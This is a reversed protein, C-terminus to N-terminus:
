LPPRIRWWISFVTVSYYGGRMKWGLDTRLLWYGARQGAIVKKASSHEWCPCGEKLRAGWFCGMFIQMVEKLCQCVVDHQFGTTGPLSVGGGTM